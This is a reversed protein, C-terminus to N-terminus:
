SYYSLESITPWKERDVWAEVFSGDDRLAVVAPFRLIDYAKAKEVGEVSECDLLTISKGTQREFDRVYDHVSTETESKPKYLIVAKM